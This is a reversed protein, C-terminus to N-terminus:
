RPKATVQGELTALEGLQTDMDGQHATLNGVPAGPFDAANDALKQLLTQAAINLADPNLRAVPMVILKM